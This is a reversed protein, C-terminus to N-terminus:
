HILMARVVAAGTHASGQSSLVSVKPSAPIKQWIDRESFELGCTGIGYETTLIDVSLEFWLDHSCNNRIRLKNDGSISVAGSVETANGNVVIFQRLIGNSTITMEGFNGGPPIPNPFDYIIKSSDTRTITARVLRYSGQLDEIATGQSGTSNDGCGSFICILTVGLAYNWIQKRM